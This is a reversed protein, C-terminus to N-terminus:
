CFVTIEPSSLDGPPAERGRRSRTGPKLVVPPLKEKGPPQRDQNDEPRPCLRQAHAKLAARPMHFSATQWSM